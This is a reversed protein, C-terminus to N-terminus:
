DPSQEYVDVEFGDRLLSLAAAFGGISGRIVAIRLPATLPEEDGALTGAGEHPKSIEPDM